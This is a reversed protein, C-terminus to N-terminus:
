LILSLLSLITALQIIELYPTESPYIGTLTLLIISILFLLTPLNFAMKSRKKILPQLSLLILFIIFIILGLTKFPVSRIISYAYLFYWEPQIHEPRRVLNREEFRQEEMWLDKTLYCLIYFLLIFSVNIFDKIIFKTFSTTINNISNLRTRSNRGIKHIILIHLFILPLFLLSALMHFSFFMQLTRISISFGRILWETLIPGVYPVASVFNLIVTGAWLGMNSNPLCYGTFAVIIIILQILSGLCWALKLTSKYIFGKIIHIILIIFILSVNISHIFNILYLRDFNISLNLIIWISSPSFSIALIIGSWLQIIICMGLFSGRNWLYSLSKPVTYNIVKLM